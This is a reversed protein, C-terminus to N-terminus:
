HCIIKKKKSLSVFFKKFEVVLHSEDSSCMIEHIKEGPRIGITEQKIKGYIDSLADNITLISYAKLRPVFIESGKGFKIANIIFNLADDMTISFRTM